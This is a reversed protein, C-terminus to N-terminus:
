IRIIPTDQKIVPKASPKFPRLQYATLAGLINMIWGDFSRLRTNEIHHMEKLQGIVTEIVGRCRLLAQEEKSLRKPKMNRRPKTILKIGLVELEKAKKQSIYGKDGFLLGKINKNLKDLGITDHKNGKTLCFDVINGYVDIVLHLKFGYFWGVSTYGKEALGKFTKHRSSRKIHCVKLSTSDIYSVEHSSQMKSTLYCFMAHMYRKNLRIFWSYSVINKFSKRLYKCIFIEYFLRFNRYGSLHYLLTIAMIEHHSLKMHKKRPAEGIAYPRYHKEYFSYFKELDKLLISLHHKM